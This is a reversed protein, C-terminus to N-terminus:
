YAQNNHLSPLTPTSVLSSEPGPLWQLMTWNLVETPSWTYSRANYESERPTFPPSPGRETSGSRIQDEEYASQAEEMELEVPSLFPSRSRSTIPSTSTAPARTHIIDLMGALLGIPSDCLSYAITQPRLAYLPSLTAGVPPHTHAPGRENCKAPRPQVESPTYGFSFYRGRTLRAIRHKLYALPSKKLTPEPFTPNATHLALCHEPYGLALARCINFGRHYTILM